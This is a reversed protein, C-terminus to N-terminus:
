MVAQYCLGFGWEQMTRYVPKKEWGLSVQLTSAIARGWRKVHRNLRVPIRSSSMGELLLELFEEFPHEPDDPVGALFARIFASMWIADFIVKM